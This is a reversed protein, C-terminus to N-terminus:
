ENIRLGFLTSIEKGKRILYQCLPHEINLPITQQFGVITIAALLQSRFNLIPISISSVNPVMSEKAFSIHNKRIDIFEQELHEIEQPTLHKFEQEKWHQVQADDMFSAFIKGAASHIPMYTGIQASLNMLRNSNLVHVVMPGNQTWIQLAVSESCKRNIEQMAPILREIINEQNVAKMVYDIMRSGLTYRGAKDKYVVGLLTLTNLYKYLNSKSIKTREHIEKVPIPRGYDAIVDIITFGVQLSQITPKQKIQNSEYSTNKM